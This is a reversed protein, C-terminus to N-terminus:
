SPAQVASKPRRGARAKTMRAANAAKREKWVRFELLEATPSEPTAVAAVPIPVVPVPAAGVVGRELREIDAETAVRYGKDGYYVRSMRDSPLLGTLREGVVVSPQRDRAQLVPAVYRVTPNGPFQSSIHTGLTSVTKTTM